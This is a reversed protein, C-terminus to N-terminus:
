GLLPELPKKKLPDFGCIFIQDNPSKENIFDIVKIGASPGTKKFIDVEDQNEAFSLLKNTLTIFNAYDFLSVRESQINLDMKKNFKEVVEPKGNPEDIYATFLYFDSKDFSEKEIGKLIGEHFCHICALTTKSGVYKQLNKIRFDNIRCVTDMGDIFHGINYKLLISSNGVIIINM